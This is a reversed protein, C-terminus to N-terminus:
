VLFQLQKRTLLAEECIEDMNETPISSSGIFGVRNEPFRIGRYSSWHASTQTTEIFDSESFCSHSNHWHEYGGYREHQRRESTTQVTPFIEHPNTSKFAYDTMIVAGFCLKECLRVYEAFEDPTFHHAEFASLVCAFQKRETFAIEGLRTIVDSPQMCVTTRLRDPFRCGSIFGSGTFPQTTHTGILLSSSEREGLLDLTKDALLPVSWVPKNLSNILPLGKVAIPLDDYEPSM